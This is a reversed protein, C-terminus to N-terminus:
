NVTVRYVKERKESRYVGQVLTYIGVDICGEKVTDM